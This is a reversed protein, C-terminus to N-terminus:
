TKDAVPPITVRASQYTPVLEECDHSPQDKPDAWSDITLATKESIQYRIRGGQRYTIRLGSVSVKGSRDAATYLNLSLIDGKRAQFHKAPLTPGFGPPPWKTICANGLYGRASYNDAARRLYGISSARNTAGDTKAPKVDLIEVDQRVRVLDFTTAM